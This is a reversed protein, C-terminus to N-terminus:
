LVDKEGVSKLSQVAVSLSWDQLPRKSGASGTLRAGWIEDLACSTEDVLSAAPGGHQVTVVGSDADAAVGKISMTQQHKQWDQEFGADDVASENDFVM